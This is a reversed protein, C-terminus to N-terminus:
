DIETIKVKGYMTRLTNKNFGYESSSLDQKPNYHQCKINMLGILTDYVMDNSFYKERNRVLNQIIKPYNKKYKESFCMYVPIKVIDRVSPETKYNNLFFDVGHHFYKAVEEGHDAFYLMGDVNFKNFLTKQLESVVYDNYLISNDYTDIKGKGEDWVAFEQPYRYKYTQHSGLLHLVYFTKQSPKQLENLKQIVDSDCGGKEMLWFERTNRNMNLLYIEDAHMSVLRAAKDSNQNTIWVTRYGAHRVMDIISMADNLDVKNYQSKETLALELVLSTLASCSFTNKPLIIKGNKVQAKLWPTTDREYGFVSMHTRTHTEGIILAFNGINGHVQPQCEKLHSKRNLKITEIEKYTSAVEKFTRIESTSSFLIGSSLCMVATLLVMRKDQKECKYNMCIKKLLIYILAFVACFLLLFILYKISFFYSYFFERIEQLSTNLIAVVSDAGLKTHVSFYYGWTTSVLLMCIGTILMFVWLCIKRAVISSTILPISLICLPLTIYFAIDRAVFRLLNPSTFFAVLPATIGFIGFIIWLCIVHRRHEHYVDAFYLWICSIIFILGITKLDTLINEAALVRAFFYGAMTIVIAMLLIPIKAKFKEYM